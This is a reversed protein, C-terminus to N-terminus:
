CYYKNRAYALINYTESYELKSNRLENFPYKRKITKVNLIYWEGCDLFISSGSDLNLISLKMENKNVDDFSRIHGYEEDIDRIRAEIETISYVFEQRGSISFAEM